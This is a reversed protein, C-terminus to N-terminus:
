RESQGAQILLEPTGCNASGRMIGARQGFLITNDSGWSAGFPATAACLTVATGGSIAIKKLQRDNVQGALAFYGVWQGDPSFFPTNLKEKTGPILQADLAGM